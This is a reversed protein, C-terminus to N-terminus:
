ASIRMRLAAQSGARDVDGERLVSKSLILDSGFFLRRHLGIEGPLDVPHLFLRLDHHVADETESLEPHLFELRRFIEGANQLFFSEFDFVADGPNGVAHTADQPDPLGTIESPESISSIGCADCFGPTAQCSGIISPAGPCPSPWLEPTGSFMTAASATFFIM